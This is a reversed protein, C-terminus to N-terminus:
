KNEIESLLFELESHVSLVFEACVGPHYTSPIITFSVVDQPVEVQCIAYSPKYAGSSGLVNDVTAYRVRSGDVCDSKLAITNVFVDYKDTEITLLVSYTGERHQEKEFLQFRFQPNTHFSQINNVSGGSSRATWASRIEHQYPLSISITRAEKIAQPKRVYHHGSSRVSNLLPHIMFLPAGTSYFELTYQMVAPELQSIVLTLQLQDSDCSSNGDDDNNDNNNHESSLERGRKTSQMSELINARNVVLRLLTSNGFEGQCILGDQLPYYVIGGGLFVHVNVFEGSSITSREQQPSISCSSDDNSRSNSATVHRHFIIWLEDFEDLRTTICFQPYKAMNYGTMPHESPNTVFGDKDVQLRYGRATLEKFSSNTSHPSFEDHCVAKYPFKINCDALSAQDHDNRWSVHITQFFRCLSDLDLWFVGNDELMAGLIDYSLEKLLEETWSSKDVPSFRGKWRKETWPNKMQLMRYQIGSQLSIERVDLVAYAHSDYLGLSQQQEETLDSRTSATILCEGTQHGHMLKQWIADKESECVNEGKEALSVLDIDEPIWGTLINLDIGSNSGVFRYTNGHLKLFAKELLSIWLENPNTSCSCLLRGKHDVPLRDDIIVKRQIGNFFLKVIYKGQPNFIPNGTADKPYILNSVLRKSFRREYSAAVCLSSVFSCDQVLTQRVSLASIIGILTIQSPDAIFDRPRKWGAFQAKQLETLEMTGDPDVFPADSFPIGDNSRM